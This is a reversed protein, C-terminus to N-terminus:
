RRRLLLQGNVVGQQRTSTVSASEVGVSYQKELAILWTVLTDFPAAEIRLRLGANGNPSQDRLAAGLGAERATRDVLVVLSEGSANPAPTGAAPHRQGADGGRIRRSRDVVVNVGGEVACVDLEPRHKLEHQVEGDVAAPRLGEVQFRHDHPLPCRDLGFAAQIRGGEALTAM